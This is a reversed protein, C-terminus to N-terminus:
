DNECEDEDIPKKQSIFDDIKTQKKSVLSIKIAKEQLRRLVLADAAEVDNQEAWTVCTHFANVADSHRITQVHVPLTESQEEHDYTTLVDQIIENDSMLQCNEDENGFLWDNVHSASLTESDHSCIDDITEQLQMIEEDNIPEVDEQIGKGDKFCKKYENLLPLDPWLKGWASVLVKTSVSEWARALNYVVDKVNTEKLSQIISKEKSIVSYLLSKKYHVKVTQIINQDMPQLLPTVNPPLFMVKILGDKSKLEDEDPHGPCNDLVLLAKQSLNQKNLFKKVSPVFEEHFWESFLERTMWAKNQHKYKVPLHKANKFARPNKSKGIVLLELKHTGSANSCPMFTLRDKSMKRGPASAEAKHVFTKNPLLRWFLGSEDANYVQDPCLDLEELTKKFKQKYPDVADFDCSLKEGTTTLLRIAFRKKFKDLWGSSARFDDKKMIEKYFFRAKEKILEGSIPTHKSREQLFWTYLADEILPYEGTKIVKRDSRKSDLNHMFAEIKDRNKKIDYITARGVGYFSALDNIKEGKNLKKIIESKEVLTLTKHKRKESCNGAQSM